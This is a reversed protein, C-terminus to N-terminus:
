ALGDPRPGESRDFLKFLLPAFMLVVFIRIVQCTVVFAVEIGLAYTMLTMEAMGGPAIALVLGPFPQEFIHAALGAVAVASGLMVFAWGVAQVLTTKAENWGVGVFRAGAITGIVVQVLAVLWFPPRAETIGLAHATASLILAAIMIGGPIAFTRGLIYGGVACAAFIGWDALSLAGTFTTPLQAGSLDQHTLLGLGFPVAFIVTVVRVSQVLVLVRMNGGLSAGLLTLEGLGGPASSFFATANDYKCVRTFFLWGIFTILFSYAMVFLVPGWWDAISALVQPTFASGALFGVVPRAFHRVPAPLFWRGGCVAMVATAFLSGLTWPLPIHLYYFATGGAFGVLLAFAGDM